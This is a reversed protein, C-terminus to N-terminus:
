QLTITGVYEGNKYVKRSLSEEVEFGMRLWLEEAALMIHALVIGINFERMSSLMPVPLRDRCSFLSFHDKYVIFRWPQTNMSSPALRAAKLITKVNESPEEKFICLDKLSLRKARSAERLLVGQAYGFAIVIIEKWGRPLLVDAKSGGLYCSGLGKATLYLVVQEALYGGNRECGKKDQSSLVLYYPANVKWLGKLRVSGKTNDLIEAKTEIEYDLLAAKRCFALIQDLMKQPLLAESFKRVSKRGSIAEYLNM